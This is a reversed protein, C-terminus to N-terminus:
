LPLRSRSRLARMPPDPERSFLAARLRGHRFMGIPRDQSVRHGFRPASTHFDSAACPVIDVGIVTMSRRYPALQDNFIEAHQSVTTRSASKFFNGSRRYGSGLFLGYFVAGTMKGNLTWQKVGQADGIHRSAFCRMVCCIPAELNCAKLGAILDSNQICGALALMRAFHACRDSAPPYNTTRTTAAM